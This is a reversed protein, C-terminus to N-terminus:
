YTKNNNFCSFWILNKIPWERGRKWTHKVEEFILVIQFLSRWIQGIFSVESMWIIQLWNPSTTAFLFVKASKLLLFWFVLAFYNNKWQFPDSMEHLRVLLSPLENSLSTSGGSELIVLLTVYTMMSYSLKSSELLMASSSQILTLNENVLWWQRKQFYLKTYNWYETEWNVHCIQCVFILIM